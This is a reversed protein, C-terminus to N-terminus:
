DTKWWLVYHLCRASKLKFKHMNANWCALEVFTHSTIAM